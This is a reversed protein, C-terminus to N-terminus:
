AMQSATAAQRHIQVRALVVACLQLGGMLGFFGFSGMKSMAPVSLMVISATFLGQVGLCGCTVSAAAHQRVCTLYAMLAPWVMCGTVGLLLLASVLVAPHLSRQEWLGLAFLTYFAPGGVLAALNNWTLRAMFSDPYRVSMRDFLSGGIPAAIIAGVGAALLAVGVLGSGWNYPPGALRKSVLVLGAYGPSFTLLGVAVHLVTDRQLIMLLPAWPFRVKPPNQRIEEAETIEIIVDPAEKLLRTYVKHHHTETLLLLMAPLLLCAYGALAFFISRWGFRQALFGGVLPGLVPGAMQLLQFAVVVRQTVTKLCLHSARLLTLTAPVLPVTSLLALMAWRPATWCDAARCGDSVGPLYGIATAM